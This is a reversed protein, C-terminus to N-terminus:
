VEKDNKEVGIIRSIASTLVQGRPLESGKRQYRVLFDDIIEFEMDNSICVSDLPEM